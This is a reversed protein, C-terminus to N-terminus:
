KKMHKYGLVLGYYSSLEVGISSVIQYANEKKTNEKMGHRVGGLQCIVYLQYYM